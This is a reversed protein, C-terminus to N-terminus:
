EDNYEEDLAREIAEAHLADVENPDRAYTLTLFGDPEVEVSEVEPFPDDDPHPDDIIVFGPNMRPARPSAGDASDHWPNGDWADYEAAQRGQAFAAWAAFMADAHHAGNHYGVSIHTDEIFGHANPGETFRVRRARELLREVRERTAPDAPVTGAGINAADDGEILGLMRLTNAKFQAPARDYRTGPFMDGLMHEFGAAEDLLLGRRHWRAAEAVGLVHVAYRNYRRVARREPKTTRGPNTM